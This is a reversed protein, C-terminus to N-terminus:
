KPAPVKITKKRIGGPVPTTAKRPTSRAPVATRGRPPKTKVIVGTPVRADAVCATRTANPKQGPPCTLSSGPARAASPPVCSGDVLRTGLPCIKGDPGVPVASVGPPQPTVQLTTDPPGGPVTPRAQLTPLCRHANKPDYGGPCDLPECRRPNTPDPYQGTPCCVGRSTARDPSCCSGDAIPILGALCCQGGSPEGSEPIAVLKIPPM